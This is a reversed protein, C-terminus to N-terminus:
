YLCGEVNLFIRKWFYQIWKKRLFGFLAKNFLRNKITKYHLINILCLCGLYFALFIIIIGENWKTKLDIKCM